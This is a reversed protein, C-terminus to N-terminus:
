DARLTVTPDTRGARWAPLWGAVFAVGALSVLAASTTAWDVGPLEGTLTSMIRSAWMSLLLGLALGTVVITATDRFVLRRIAAPAAGLALRIGFEARRCTVAFAVVGYLGLAALTLALTAVIVTVRALLKERGVLAAVANSLPESTEIQVGAESGVATRVASAAAASNRARVLLRSDRRAGPFYVM